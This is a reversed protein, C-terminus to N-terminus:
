NLIKSDIKMHQKINSRYASSYDCVECRYSKEGNHKKMHRNLNCKDASSYDCLECKFPKEGTHKWVNKLTM